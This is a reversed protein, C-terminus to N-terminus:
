IPWLNPRQSSQTAYFAQSIEPVGNKERRRRKTARYANYAAGAGLGVNILDSTSFYSPITRQVLQGAGTAVIDLTTSAASYSTRGAHVVVARGLGEATEFSRAFSAGVRVNPSIFSRDGFSYRRRRSSMQLTFVLESFM